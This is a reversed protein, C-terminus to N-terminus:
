GVAAMADGSISDGYPPNRGVIGVQGPLLASADGARVKEWGARSGLGSNGFFGLRRFVGTASFCPRRFVSDGYM